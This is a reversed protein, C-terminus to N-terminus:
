AAEGWSWLRDLFGRDEEPVASPVTAIPPVVTMQPGPLAPPVMGPVQAQQQAQTLAITNLGIRTKKTGDYSILAGIAAGAGLLGLPGSFLTALAVGLGGVVGRADMGAIKPKLNPDKLSATNLVSGSIYAPLGIYGLLILPNM